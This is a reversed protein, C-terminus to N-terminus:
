CQAMEGAGQGDKSTHLFSDTNHNYHPTINIRSLPKYCAKSIQETLLPQHLTPPVQRCEVDCEYRNLCSEPDARM